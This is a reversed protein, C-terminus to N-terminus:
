HEYMSKAMDVLEDLSVKGKLIYMEQRNQDYVELINIDKWSYFNRQYAVAQIPKYGSGQEVGLDGHQGGAIEVIKPDLYYRSYEGQTLEQLRADATKNAPEYWFPVVKIASIKVIGENLTQEEAASAILDPIDPASQNWYVQLLSFQDYHMGCRYEYGAPLYSPFRMAIGSQGYLSRAEEQNMCPTPFFNVVIKGTAITGKNEAEVAYDYVTPDYSLYNHLLRYDWSKGPPIQASISIKEGEPGTTNLTVKAWAPPIIENSWIMTNNFTHFVTLGSPDVINRFNNPLTDDPPTIRASSVTAVARSASISVPVYGSHEDLATLSRFEIRLYYQNGNYGFNCDFLHADDHYGRIVINTVTHNFNNEFTRILRVADSSNVEMAFGDYRNGQISPFSDNSFTDAQGILTSLFEFDALDEDRLDFCTEEQNVLRSLSADAKKSELIRFYDAGAQRTLYPSSFVLSFLVGFVLVIILITSRYGM